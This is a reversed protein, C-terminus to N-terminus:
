RIKSLNMEYIVKIQRTTRMIDNCKCDAQKWLREYVDQHKWLDYIEEVQPDLVTCKKIRHHRVSPCLSQNITPSPPECDQLRRLFDDFFASKLFNPLTHAVIGVRQPGLMGNFQSTKGGFCNVQCPSSWSLKFVFRCKKAATNKQTSITSCQMTLGQHIISVSPAAHQCFGPCGSAHLPWSLIGNCCSKGPAASHLEVGKQTFIYQTGTHQSQPRQPSSLYSALSTLCTMICKRPDGLITAAVRHFEVVQEPTWPDTTCTHKHKATSANNM